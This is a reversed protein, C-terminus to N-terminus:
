VLCFCRLNTECNFMGEIEIKREVPLSVLLDAALSVFEDM